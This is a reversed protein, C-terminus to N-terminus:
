IRLPISELFRREVKAYKVGYEIMESWSEDKHLAIEFWKGILVVYLKKENFAHSHWTPKLVDKLLDLLECIKDEPVHYEYRHWVPCEDEPVNEIYQSIFYSKLVELIDNNELSEEIIGLRFMEDKVM